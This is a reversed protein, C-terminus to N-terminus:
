TTQLMQTPHWEDTNFWELRFVQSNLWNKLWVNASVVSNKAQTLCVDLFKLLIRQLIRKAYTLTTKGLNNQTLPTSQQQSPLVTCNLNEFLLAINKGAM